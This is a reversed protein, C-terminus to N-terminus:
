PASSDHFAEEMSLTVDKMFNSDTLTVGPAIYFPIKKIDIGHAKGWAHVRLKVGHFGEGCIYFVPGPSTKKGNWPIGAAICLGQDQTILSKAAGSQGITASFSGEELYKHILFRRPKIELEGIKKIPYKKTAEFSAEQRKEVQELELSLPDKM